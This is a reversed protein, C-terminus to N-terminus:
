EEAEKEIKKVANKVVKANWYSRNLRLFSLDEFDFPSIRHRHLGLTSKTISFLREVVNSTPPVYKLLHYETKKVKDDHKLAKDIFDSRKKMSNSTSHATVTCTSNNESVIFNKLRKQVVEDLAEGRIVKVCADEFWAYKVIDANPALYKSLTPNQECLTDFLYRVESINLKERQLYICTEEVDRL